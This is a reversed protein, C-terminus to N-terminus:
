STKLTGALHDYVLYLDNLVINKSNNFSIGVIISKSEQVLSELHLKQDALRFM